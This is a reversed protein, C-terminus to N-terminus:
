CSYMLLFYHKLRIWSICFCFNVPPSFLFRFIKEDFFGTMELYDVQSVAKKSFFFPDQKICYQM